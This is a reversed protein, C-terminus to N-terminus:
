TGDADTLKWGRAEADARLDDRVATLDIVLQELTQEEVRGWQPRADWLRLGLPQDDRLLRDGGFARVDKLLSDVPEGFAPCNWTFLDTYWHDTPGGMNM